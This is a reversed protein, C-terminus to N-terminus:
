GKPPTARMTVSIERALVDVAANDPTSGRKLALEVMGLEPLPMGGIQDIFNLDCGTPQGDAFASIGMGAAVANRVNAYSYGDYAIRARIGIAKLQDFLLQRYVCGEHFVVLPLPAPPSWLFGPASVWRLRERRLIYKYDKADGSALKKVIAIDIEGRRLRAELRYSFDSVACVESAPHLAKFRRILDHLGFIECDDMIGITVNGTAVPNALAQWATEAANLIAQAHPLFHRGAETLGTVHGRSRDFLQHGILDELGKTQLTLASQTRMLVRAAHTFSGCEAVTTFVRLQELTLRRIDGNM